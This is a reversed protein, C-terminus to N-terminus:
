LEHSFRASREVNAADPISRSDMTIKGDAWYVRPCCFDRKYRNLWILYSCYRAVYACADRLRAVEKPSFALQRLVDRFSPPEVGRCGMELCLLGGLRWGGHLRTAMDKYRM